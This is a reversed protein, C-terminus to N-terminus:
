VLATFFRDASVVVVDRSSIYTGSPFVVQYVYPISLRSRFYELNKSPNTEDLKAEVAFWPKRNVTVLFDVEHGDVDRLFFLDAKVGKVDYLYHCFKLLHSAIINEFRKSKDEVESWDWLYLKPEKRLSRIAKQTYPAIRFHYYFRELIDMWHSVARHSVQLDERLTNLSLLSGVKAPLLSVLIHMASLDRIPELDRIDERVLRDLRTNRFRDTIAKDNSFLPEPFGGTRMLRSLQATHDERSDSFVLEKGIKQSFHIDEIEAYSFPHLRYYYYRGLLSDGGQRYTDLRVSGTVIIHFEKKRKDYLAKLYNKWHRYKHLEDFILLDANKNFTQSLILTRDVRDDFLLYQPHRYTKAGIMQALTTKGVQRPGGIFVMKGRMLDKIISDQLYRKHEKYMRYYEIMRLFTTM